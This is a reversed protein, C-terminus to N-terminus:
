AARRAGIPSGRAVRYAHGATTLWAILLALAAAGGFIGALVPPSTLDLAYRFGALWERMVYFAVPWAILDHEDV